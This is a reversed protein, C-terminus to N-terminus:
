HNTDEYLFPFSGWSTDIKKEIEFANSIDGYWIQNSKLDWTLKKELFKQKITQAIIENIIFFEM